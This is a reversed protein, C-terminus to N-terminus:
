ERRLRKFLLRYFDGGNLEESLLEWGDAGYENLIRTYFHDITTVSQEALVGNMDGPVRENAKVFVELYEWRSVAAEVPAIEDLKALWKQATLSAPMTKLVARAADFHDHVILERAAQLKTASM